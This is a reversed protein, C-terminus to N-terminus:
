RTFHLLRWPILKTGDPSTATRPNLTAKMMFVVPDDPTVDAFCLALDLEPVCNESRAVQLVVANDLLFQREDPDLKDPLWSPDLAQYDYNKLINLPAFLEGTPGNVEYVGFDNVFAEPGGADALKSYDVGVLVYFDSSTLYHASQDWTYLSDRNDLGCDLANYNCTFGHEFIAAEEGAATGNSGTFMTDSVLATHDSHGVLMKVSAVLRNFARKFQTAGTPGTETPDRPTVQVPDRPAPEFNRFVYFPYSQRSIPLAYSKLRPARLALGLESRPVELDSISFLFQSPSIPLVQVTDGPIKDEIVDRLEDATTQDATVVLNIKTNYSQQGTVTLPNLSDGLSANLREVLTPNGNEDQTLVDQMRYPTFGFYHNESPTCARILIADQGGFRISPGQTEEFEAYFLDENPDLFHKRALPPPQNYDFLRGRTVGYGLDNMAEIVDQLDDDVNECQQDDFTAQATFAVGAAGATLVDGSVGLLAVFVCGALRLPLTHDRLM